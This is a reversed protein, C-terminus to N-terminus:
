SRRIVGTRAEMPVHENLRTRVADEIEASVNSNCALYCKLFVPDRNGPPAQIWGREPDIVWGETVTTDPLKGFTVLVADIAVLSGPAATASGVPAPQYLCIARDEGYLEEKLDIAQKDPSAKGGGIFDSLYIPRASELISTADAFENAPAYLKQTHGNEHVALYSEGAVTHLKAHEELKARQSWAEVVVDLPYWRGRAGDADIRRVTAVRPILGPRQDRRNRGVLKRPDPTGQLRPAGASRVSPTTVVERNNEFVVTHWGTIFGVISGLVEPTGKRRRAWITKAVDRRLILRPPPDRPPEIKPQSTDSKPQLPLIPRYGILDAVYPLARPDCTEVFFNANAEEIKEELLDAQKGFVELVKKLPRGDILSDRHRVVAPLLGYLAGREFRANSM